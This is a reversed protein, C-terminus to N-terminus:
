SPEYEVIANFGQKQLENIRFEQLKSVRGKSGKVEIFLPTEEKKLCLLDPIGNKNTTILRIVYWGQGEYQKILKAQYKSESMKNEKTFGRVL